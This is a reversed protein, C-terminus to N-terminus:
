RKELYLTIIRPLAYRETQAEPIRIFGNLGAPLTDAEIEYFRVRLLRHSLQHKMPSSIRRITLGSAGAFLRDFAEGALLTEPATEEPTELLPFEYLNQWIDKAGRRHLLIEGNCRVHLYHFYRTLVTTKGQKVPLQRVTGELRAVCREQFPCSACEPVGPVCQLAGFDMIAQNYTGPHERDLLEGALERFCRKGETSDIPTDVGFVRSLVRYVNGDVVACPLDLCFSCIAAATYEGIGKLSLVDRYNAPFVGGFKEVIDKAARHMNRARSYYGLGQWYRLVEDEAAGALAAVDPFRETFRIFYDWGQSVRTQQLIIESVWVIYPDRSGRWPLERGNERYWALLTRSFGSSDIM